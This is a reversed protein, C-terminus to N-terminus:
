DSQILRSAVSGAKKGWMGALSPGSLHVDVELSHCPVCDKYLLAGRAPDGDALAAASLAWATIVSTFYLIPAIFPRL